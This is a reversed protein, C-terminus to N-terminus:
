DSRSLGIDVMLAASLEELAARLEDVDLGEPLSIRARAYFLHEGGMPAPRRDTELEVVSVRREALCRSVDRVIGPQDPGVLEISFEAVAPTAAAEAEAITLRFGDAHLANLAQAIPAADDGAIEVRAIGAFKGALHAMQSELWNGGAGAVAESLRGVLGPRDDAIFTLVLTKPM